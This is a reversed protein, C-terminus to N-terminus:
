HGEFVHDEIDDLRNLYHLTEEEKGVAYINKEPFSAKLMEVLGRPATHTRIRASTATSSSQKM